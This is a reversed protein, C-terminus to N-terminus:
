DVAQDFLHPLLPVPCSLMNGKAADNRSTSIGSECVTEREDRLCNLTIRQLMDIGTLCGSAGTSQRNAAVIIAVALM